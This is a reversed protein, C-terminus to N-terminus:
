KTPVKHKQISRQMIHLFYSVAALPFEYLLPIMSFDRPFFSM